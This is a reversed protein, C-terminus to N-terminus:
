PDMIPAARPDMIPAARPDMAPAYLGQADSTTSPLPRQPPAQTTKLVNNLLHDSAQQMEADTLGKDWVVLEAIAFDSEQGPM